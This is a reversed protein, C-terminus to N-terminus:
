ATLLLLRDLHRPIRHPPQDPRRRRPRRGVLHRYLSRRAGNRRCVASLPPQHPPDGDQTTIKGYGHGVAPRISGAGILYDTVSKARRESLDSTTPTRDVRDTHSGMEVNIGPNEQLTKVLADLAETSEPRLTAKDFDYFINEVVNPRTLSALMFDVAYDADAAATDSEFEQRANLYGNAGALM